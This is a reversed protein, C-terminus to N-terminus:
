RRDARLGLSCAHPRDLLLFRDLSQLVGGFLGQGLVDVESGRLDIAVNPRFTENKEDLIKGGHEIAKGGDVHGHQSDLGSLDTNDDAGVARALGGEAVEHAPLGIRGSTPYEEIPSSIVLLDSDSM